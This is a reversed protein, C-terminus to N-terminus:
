FLRKEEKAAVSPKGPAPSKHPLSWLRYAQDEYQDKVIPAPHLQACVERFYEIGRGLKRGRITHKDLCWDPIEPIFGELQSRLGVAAQFHDGERSKPVRCLARIATGVATRWRGLGNDDEGYWEKAQQCCLRVLSIISPDALGIDEHAIFELRNAVWSSFGKSTHGLEVAMEMAEREMGRRIFKQLCSICESADLGHITKPIFGM